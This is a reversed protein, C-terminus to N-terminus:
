SPCSPSVIDVEPLARIMDILAIVNKAPLEGLVNLISQLQEQSIKFEKM